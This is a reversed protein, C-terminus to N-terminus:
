GVVIDDLAVRDLQWHNIAWELITEAAEELLAEEPELQLGELLTRWVEKAPLNDVPTACTSKGLKVGQSNTILPLHAYDPTPLGLRRQLDIHMPTLSLQDKGRVIETFADLADDVVTALHYAILGDARRIVFDGVDAQMHLSYSGQLRDEVTINHDHTALRVSRPRSDDTVGQRCTGPYIMGNPGIRAQESILKRSCSCEFSDGQHELQQLAEEYADRRQSQYVVPGDWDLCFNELTALISDAAGPVERPPDIDDIRVHWEGQMSRAQLYSALAAFLTGLHAPGSPTPAFRGKYVPFSM